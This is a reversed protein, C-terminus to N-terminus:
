NGSEKNIKYMTGIDIDQDQGCKNRICVEKYEEIMKMERAKVVETNEWIMVDTYM